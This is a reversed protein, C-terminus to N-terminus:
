SGSSALPTVTRPRMSGQRAERTHAVLLGLLNNSALLGSRRPPAAAFSALRSRPQHQLVLKAQAPLELSERYFDESRLGTAVIATLTEVASGDGVDCAVELV